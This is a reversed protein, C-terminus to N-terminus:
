PVTSDPPHQPDPDSHDGRTSPPAQYQGDVEEVATEPPDAILEAESDFFPNMRDSIGFTSEMYERTKEEKVLNYQSNYAPYVWTLIVVSLVFGGVGFGIITKWHPIDRILTYSGGAAPAIMRTGLVPSKQRNYQRSNSICPEQSEVVITDRQQDRICSRYWSSAPPM